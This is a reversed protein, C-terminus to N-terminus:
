AIINLKYLGIADRSIYLIRQLLGSPDDDFPVIEPNFYFSSPIGFLFTDALQDYGTSRGDGDRLLMEAGSISLALSPTRVEGPELPKLYGFPIATGRYTNEEM